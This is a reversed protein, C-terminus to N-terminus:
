KSYIMIRKYADYYKRDSSTYDGYNGKRNGFEDEAVVRILQAKKYKKTNYKVNYEYRKKKKNYKMTGYFMKDYQKTDNGWKFLGFECTVEQIDSDDKVKVSFKSKQNKKIRRKSLKLSNLKITPAQVDAKTGKVLFDTGIFDYKLVFSYDDEDVDVIELNSDEDIVLQIYKLKWQGPSMGKKIPLEGEIKIRPNKTNTGTWKHSVVVGQGVSSAWCVHITKVGKSKKTYEFSWDYGYEKVFKDIGVDEIVFSYKLTDGAYFTDGNFKVDTVTVPSAPLKEAKVEMVPFLMILMCVCIIFLHKKKRRV